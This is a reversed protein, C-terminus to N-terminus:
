SKYNCADHGSELHIGGENGAIGALPASAQKQPSQLYNHTHEITTTHLTTTHLM